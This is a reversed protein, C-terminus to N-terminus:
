WPKMRWGIIFGIAFIAGAVVRPRHVCYKKVSSTMEAVLISFDEQKEDCFKWKAVQTGPSQNPTISKELAM